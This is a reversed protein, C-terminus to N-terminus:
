INSVFYDHAIYFNMWGDIVSEFGSCAIKRTSRQSAGACLFFDFYRNFPLTRVIVNAAARFAPFWRASQKRLNGDNRPVVDADCSVFVLECYHIGFGGNLAMSALLAANVHVAPNLIFAMRKIAKIENVSFTRTCRTPRRRFKCRKNGRDDFRACVRCVHLSDSSSQGLELKRGVIAQGWGQHVSYGRM